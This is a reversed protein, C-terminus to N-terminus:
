STCAVLVSLHELELFRAFEAKASLFGKVADKVWDANLGTKAAVRAAADRLAATPRYVADVGQTSPRAAHALCMVAGGVLILEARTDSRRLDDNLLELLRHIAAGFLRRAAVGPRRVDGRRFYKPVPAPSHTLM